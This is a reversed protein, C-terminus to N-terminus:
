RKAEKEVLVHDATERRLAIVTERILYARPDGASGTFLCRVERGPVFGLESLRKTLPTSQTERIRGCEGPMLESLTSIELM